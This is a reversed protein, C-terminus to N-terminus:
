NKSAENTEGPFNLPEFITKATFMNTAEKDVQNDSDRM